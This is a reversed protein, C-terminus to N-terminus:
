TADAPDTLATRRSLRTIAETIFGAFSLRDRDLGSWLNNGPAQNM